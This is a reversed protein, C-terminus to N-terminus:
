LDWYVFSLSRNGANGWTGDPSPYTGDFSLIVSVPTANASQWDRVLQLIGQATSYSATSGYTPTPDTSLPDLVTGTITADSTNYDNWLGADAWTLDTTWLGTCDLIVWCRNLSQTGDWNWSVSDISVPCVPASQYDQAYQYGGPALTYRTGDDCQVWVKQNYPQLYAQLQEMLAFANGKRKRSQRWGILRKIYSDDGEAPGRIIGRAAGILHLAGGPGCGPYPYAYKLGQDLTDGANDFFLGITYLIRSGWFGKLWRPAGSPIAFRYKIINSM